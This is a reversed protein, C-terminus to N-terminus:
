AVQTTYAYVNSYSGVSNVNIELYTSNAVNKVVFKEDNVVISDDISFTNSFDTGTGIVVNAAVSVTGAIKILKNYDSLTIPEATFISDFQLSQWESILTNAYNAIILDGYTTAYAAFQLKSLDVKYRHFIDTQVDLETTREVQFIKNLDLVEAATDLTEPAIQVKVRSAISDSISADLITKLIASYRSKAVDASVNFESLIYLIYENINTIATSSTISASLDLITEVLIEGFVQLGAPHIVSKITDIYKSYVIGSRIVYSFDQYYYSDQIKKNDIKGDDNIWNGNKIALGSIITSLNANGDGSSTLDVTANTYDIGFNKLEVARISGVGTINNYVDVSVNAGVGQIGTVVLNASSGTTSNVNASPLNTTTYGDGFNTMEIRAIPGISIWDEKKIVDIGSQDLLRSGDEFLLDYTTTETVSAVIGSANAGSGGTFTITNSVGYNSGANVITILNDSLLGISEIVDDVLTITPKKYYDKGRSIIDVRTAEGVTYTNSGSTVTYTNSIETVRITLGTGGTGTNDISAETGLRYGYGTSAYNLATIPSQQISSVTAEVASGDGTIVLNDGVQYGSGGDNITFGTIMGYLTTTLTEDSTDVITENAAFVGSVLKLTMEAIIISGLVYTKIDVVNAITGSTTGRITKNLFDFVNSTAVTRILQTKDFKGDSVRLLDEGPYILDVNEDYLTKFLFKYSSEQGKSQYYDKLKRAVLREDGYFKTPFNPYLEDKLYESFKDVSKLISRYDLLNASRKLVNDTISTLIASATSTGVITERSIFSKETTVTVVIYGDGVYRIEASAKSSDGVIIENISFTGIIGELVFTSTQLWEYYAKLFLVFNESDEYIAEPIQSSIGLKPSHKVIKM